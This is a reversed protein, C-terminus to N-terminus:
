TEHGALLAAMVAPAHFRRNYTRDGYPALIDLGILSDILKKAWPYKVDLAEAAEVITFTPRAVALDVLVLAKATRIRSSALKETLEAQIDALVVMRRQTAAASEALGLAFFEVWTSWDGQTSVGMLADYYQSRRAEFWPSVSITPETLVGAGYLQLVILLRGLRGNGDHFPHLAEFEYHGMAAAVVPDIESRTDSQMWTLLDRFRSELDPGPPPPVYRAAKIPIERASVRDRRGVVVQIPRVQGSHDRESSTGSLLVHHLNALLPVSWPRGEEVWAFAQEAVEVYNIVERLSPDSLEDADAALVRALPEYTGELAATSQAEFRLTSGRFLRPNPMRQATSDLAGLAARAEAVSRYARDSLAPSQQELPRPVFAVHEWATGSPTSGTIPILDGASGSQFLKVDVIYCYTM